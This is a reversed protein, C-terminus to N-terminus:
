PIVCRKEKDCIELLLRKFFPNAFAPAVLASPLLIFTGTGTDYFRSWDRSGSTIHGSLQDVSAMAWGDPLPPMNETHPAALEKYQGRGQWNQRRETLIRALLAEGSEYAPTKVASFASSASLSDQKTKTNEANKTALEAETPVLKGECAAKLVAARYRKLNAQVRRLAAVGAELRTFQKEIESVIRRQEPLPPVPIPLAKIERLNLRPRGVGHIIGKAQRRLDPANLVYNLFKPIIRPGVKFRICDAKVIAPGLSEPVICSRPPNEGLAAIVIDGPFVRHKQLTSFHADSIHAKTDVFETDGINKLRVVRPGASTYHATKLKSGFPGDTISNREDAALEGLRAISWGGDKARQPSSTNQSEPVLAASRKAPHRIRCPSTM